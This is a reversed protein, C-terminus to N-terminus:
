HAAVSVEGMEQVVSPVRGSPGEVPSTEEPLGAGFSVSAMRSGRRLSEDAEAESGIM